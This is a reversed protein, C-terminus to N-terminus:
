YILEFTVLGDARIDEDLSLLHRPAIFIAADLNVELTRVASPGTAVSKSELYGVREANAHSAVASTASLLWTRGDDTSRTLHLDGRDSTATAAWQLVYAGINEGAGTKGLGFLQGDAYGVDLGTPAVATGAREDRMVRFAFPMPGDCLVRLRGIGASPVRTSAGHNDLDAAHLRGFSVHRLVEVDCRGPLVDAQLTLDRVAGTAASEITGTVSWQAADAVSLAGEEMGADIDILASFESGIAVVGHKVPTLGQDPRWSLAAGTRMPVGGARDVQGLDVPVGDLVGDRLRLAFRGRDTFRFGEADARMGRFFVTMDQPAGCRVHLAVARAPLSLTGHAGLPLTARSLRGYDVHTTALAVECPEAQARASPAFWLALLAATVRAFARGISLSAGSV